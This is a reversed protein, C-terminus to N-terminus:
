RIYRTDENKAIKKLQVKSKNRKSRSFDFLLGEYASLVTLSFKEFVEKVDDLKVDGIDRQIDERYVEFLLKVLGLKIIVSRDM